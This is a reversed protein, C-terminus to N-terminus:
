PAAQSKQEKMSELLDFMPQQSVRLLGEQSRDLDAILYLVCLFALILAIAALSHRGAALGSQYGVAAMGLAALFYLAIWLILPIRSRAALLRTAQLDIMQNLSQIYLGTSISDSAQRAQVAQNWLLSQLESSRAVASEIQGEQVIRVRLEVYERLLRDSQSQQPEPLFRTRLWTTGIANSEDLVGMRRADFRQAALSFTFGLVLAILGLISAVIAGAVQEKEDPARQKRWKGFRFGGELGLCLLVIIWALIGWLPVNDLLEAQM